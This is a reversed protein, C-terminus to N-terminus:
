QGCYFIVVFYLWFVEEGAGEKSENEPKAEPKSKPM